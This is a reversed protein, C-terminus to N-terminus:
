KILNIEIGSIPLPIVNQWTQGQNQSEIEGYPLPLLMNPCYTQRRFDFCYKGLWKYGQLPVGLGDIKTTVDKIPTQTFFRLNLRNTLHISNTPYYIESLAADLSYVYNDLFVPFNFEVNKGPYKNLIQSCSNEDFKCLVCGLNQIDCVFRQQISKQQFDLYIKDSAVINSIKSDAKTKLKPDGLLYIYRKYYFDSVWPLNGPGYGYLCSADFMRSNLFDADGVPVILSNDVIKRQDQGYYLESSVFWLETAGFWGVAGKRIADYSILTKGYDSEENWPELTACGFGYIFTPNKLVPFESTQMQGLVTRWAHGDYIFLSADKLEEAVQTKADHTYYDKFNSVIKSYIEADMAANWSQVSQTTYNVDITQVYINVDGITYTGGEDWFQQMDNVRLYVKTKEANLGDFKFVFTNGHVTVTKTDGVGLLDVSSEPNNGQRLTIRVRDVAAQQQSPDNYPHWYVVKNSKAVRDYFISRAILSSADSVSYGTIAGTAADPVYYGSKYDAWYYLNVYYQHDDDASFLDGPSVIDYGIFPFNQESGVVVIYSPSFGGSTIENIRSKVSERTPNPINLVVGKRGGALIPSALSFRPRKQKNIDDSTALILYDSSTKMMNVADSITLSHDFNGNVGIGITEANWGKILSNEESTLPYFFIPINYYAAFSAATLSTEYNNGDAIVVFNSSGYLKSNINGDSLTEKNAFNYDYNKLFIKKPSYSEIFLKPSFDDTKDSSELLPDNNPNPIQLRNGNEILLIPSISSVSSIKLINKWDIEGNESSVGIMFVSDEDVLAKSAIQKGFLIQGPNTNQICEGNSCGYSCDIPSGWKLCSDSDYNGCIEYSNSDMCQKLGNASCENECGCQGNSCTQGQACASVTSWELCSDSDYNGCTKYHNGDTCQKIGANNCENTCGSTAICAGDSCGNNCYEKREERNGCSDFWYLHGSDCRSSSHSECATGTKTKDVIRGTTGIKFACEIKSTEADIWAVAYFNTEPDTVKVGYFEKQSINPNECDRRIDEIVSAAQRASYHSVRVQANPHENLFDKMMSNTKAISAADFGLCGSVVIVTILASSILLYRSKPIM